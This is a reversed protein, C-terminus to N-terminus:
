KMLSVDGKYLGIEGDLFLVEVVYIYVGDALTEGKYIGDWAYMTDNPQFNAAQYLLEGWRSYVSFNNIQQINPSPGLITFYDNVGDQNPSFANPIYVKRVDRVDIKLSDTSLCGARATRATLTIEMSNEPTLGISECEIECFVNDSAEWITSYAPESFFADINVSDGLDIFIDAGMDVVFPQPILLNITTDFSCGYRDKIHYNYEGGALNFISPEIQLSDNIFVEFPESGNIFTDILITGNNEDVCGPDISSLEARLDTDQVITLDLTVISDCGYTTLLNDEYIGTTNFFNDGLSFSLGECLTDVITYFKPAVYIVKMNSVIRCFPNDLNVTGDGVVFRYYYYGGSLNTFPYTLNTEGAIDQWTQGEDLSEQWQLSPNAFEEGIITATLTIPNGDECINAVEEPLILAQPGCARFSINDLALDNGSGGPANNQLALTISTQEPGTTFTFGYTNWIQNTPIDGTEFVIEGDLLFSVNPKISGSAILNHVDASFVYLTNECLGEVEKQYFLGPEYSANVVMMYGNPDDSNDGINLWFSAFDGWTSTNNTITYNGDFPPPNTAYGYGPAIQPNTLLINAEGSGFDGDLFINEGLNGDCLQSFSSTTMGFLFAFFLFYKKM